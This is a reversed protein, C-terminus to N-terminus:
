PLHILTDCGKEEGSGVSRVHLPHEPHFLQTYFLAYRNEDAFCVTSGVPLADVVATTPGVLDALRTGRPQLYAAGTMLTVSALALLIVARAVTRTASQRASAFAPTFALLLVSAILTMMWFQYYRLEHSNPLLMCAGTAAALVLLLPLTSRERARAVLLALLALVYVCFYGGMRFSQSSRPVDGQDITWPMSRGRYADFEFVSALWRLWGPFDIWQASVSMTRQSQDLTEIGRLSHGGIRIVVPYVPNQFRWENYLLQPLISAIGLLALGGAWLWPVRRTAQWRRYSYAIVIAAWVAAAVPILLMKTGAAFTLGAWAAVLDPAPSAAPDATTIRLLALIGIMLAANGGLDVYSATLHIQVLPVALLALWAWALPVAFRWWLYGCLAAVLTLTVAHGAAPTGFLRWLLGYATHFLMPFGLYRQESTFGLTLCQADCLGAARAAYPLHYQLSDWNLDVSTLARVAVLVFTAIALVNIAHDFPTLHRLPM